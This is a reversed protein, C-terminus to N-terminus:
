RWSLSSPRPRGGRERGLRRGCFALLGGLCLLSAVPSAVRKTLRCGCGDDSEAGSPAAASGAAAGSGGTGGPGSGGPAGGGVTAGGGAGGSGGQNGGVEADLGFLWEAINAVGDDNDDGFPDTPMPGAASGAMDSYLGRTNEALDPFPQAIDEPADIVHGAAQEVSDVVHDDVWDRDAPRAGARALVRAKVEGHPVPSHGSLTVPPTTVKAADTAGDRLRVYTWDAADAQAGLDCANDLFYLESGSAPDEKISSFNESPSAGTGQHVNSTAAATVPDTTSQVAIAFTAGHILNNALYANTAGKSVYPNRDVNFAFLNDTLSAYETAGISLGKSHGATPATLFQCPCEGPNVDCDVGEISRYDYSKPHVSENLGYALINNTVTSYSGFYGLIDVGFSFSNHDVINHAPPPDDGYQGILLAKHNQADSCSLGNDDLRFRLHQWITHSGHANIKVNYLTVGPSPATQGAVWIYGIGQSGVPQGLDRLRIASYSGGENIVGSVEFLIIRGRDAACYSTDSLCGQLNGRYVEVGSGEYDPDLVPAESSWALSDVVCIAPTGAASFPGQTDAFGHVGPIFEAALSPVVTLSLALAVPAGVRRTANGRGAVLAVRDHPRHM